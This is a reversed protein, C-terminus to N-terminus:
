DIAWGAEILEGASAFVYKALGDKVQLAIGKGLLGEIDSVAYGLTKHKFHLLGDPGIQLNEIAERTQQQLSESWSSSQKEYKKM